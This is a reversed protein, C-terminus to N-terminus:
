SPSPAGVRTAENLLPFDADSSTRLKKLLGEAQRLLDGLAAAVGDIEAATPSGSTAGLAKSFFSKM